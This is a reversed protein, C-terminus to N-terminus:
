ERQQGVVEAAPALATQDLDAIRSLSAADSIVSTLTIIEGAALPSNIWFQVSGAYDGAGTPIHNLYLDTSFGNTTSGNGQNQVGVTVLTGGTDAPFTDM